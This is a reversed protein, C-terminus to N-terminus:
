HILSEVIDTHGAAAARDLAGRGFDDHSTVSDHNSLAQVSPLDGHTAALWLAEHRPTGERFAGPRRWRIAGGRVRPRPAGEGDGELQGCGPCGGACRGEGDM